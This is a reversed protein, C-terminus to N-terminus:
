LSSTTPKMPKKQPRPNILGLYHAAQGAMENVERPMYCVLFLIIPRTNTFLVISSLTIRYSHLTSVLQLNFHEEAVRKRNSFAQDKSPPTDANDEGPIM